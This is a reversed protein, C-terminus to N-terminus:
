MQYRIFLVEFVLGIAVCFRNLTITTLITGTNRMTFGGMKHLGSDEICIRARIGDYTNSRIIVFEAHFLFRQTTYSFLVLEGQSLVFEYQKLEVQECVYMKTITLARIKGSLVTSYMLNYRRKISNGTINKFITLGNNDSRLSATTDTAFNSNLVVTENNVDFLWQQKVTNKIYKVISRPSIRPFHTAALIIFNDSVHEIDTEKYYIKLILWDQGWPSELPPL